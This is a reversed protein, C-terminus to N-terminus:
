QKKHAFKYIVNSPNDVVCKVKYNEEIKWEGLVAIPHKSFKKFTNLIYRLIEDFQIKTLCISATLYYRKNNQSVTPYMLTFLKLVATM